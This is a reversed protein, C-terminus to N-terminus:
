LTCVRSVDIFDFVAVTRRCAAILQILSGSKKGDQNDNDLANSRQITFLRCM